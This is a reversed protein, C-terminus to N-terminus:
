PSDRMRFFSVSPRRFRGRLGRITARGGGPSREPSLPLRRWGLFLEFAILPILWSCWAAITYATEPNPVGVLGATGSILRLVVASCILLYSRIMWRGHAAFRRQRAAIVGAIACTATAISLLAFSLGAPWGGFAQRAMVMGSPLVLLLLVAVYLWGLWRHRTGFRQRVSDGLLILGSVLVFPASGIHIYFAVKYTGVFTKERGQLFLSEFNAPFYDPYNALITALVRLILVAALWRLISTLIAPRVAASM